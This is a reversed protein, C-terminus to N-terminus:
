TTLTREYMEIQESTFRQMDVGAHYAKFWDAVKTLTEPLNWAPRWDLRLMAKQIHLSIYSEEYFEKNPSSVINTPVHWKEYLTEALWLVDFQEHEDPGFNWAEAYAQGNEGMLQEALMLYGRLPELVHQWPRVSMPNRIYLPQHHVAANVIDPVLREKSWDGGGIVNGARATAIRARDENPSSFFSARYAAAILEAAAKSASYPDNGGLPDEEQYSFAVGKNIYVKDTTIMVVAKVSPVDRVSEMVHVSGMMNISFTDVPNRYSDRVLPQAALHFVVEPQVFSVYSRLANLDRIDAIVESTMLQRIRCIEYMSPETPPSLSYGYVNAGMNKLWLALWSGKFGTHGTILVSRGQWFSTLM